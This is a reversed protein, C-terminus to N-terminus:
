ILDGSGTSFLLFESYSLDRLLKKRESLPSSSHKAKRKSNSAVQDINQASQDEVQVTDFKVSGYKKTRKQPTSISIPESSYRSQAPTSTAKPLDEFDQLKLLSSSDHLYLSSCVHYNEKDSNAVVKKKGTVVNENCPKPQLPTRKLLGDSRKNKNEEM